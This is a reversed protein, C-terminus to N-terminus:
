PLVEHWRLRLVFLTMCCVGILVASSLLLYVRPVPHRKLRCAFFGLIAALDIIIISGFTILYTSWPMTIEAPSLFAVTIFMWVALWTLRRVSVVARDKKACEATELTANM